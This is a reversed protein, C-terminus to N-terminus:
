VNANGPLKDEELRWNSVTVRGGYQWDKGESANFPDRKPGGVEGTKPNVEGEFEVKIKRYAPHFSEEQKNSATSSIIKEPRDSSVVDSAESASASTPANAQKILRELEEQQARPLAPPAPRSMPAPLRTTATCSFTRLPTSRLSTRTLRTLHNM